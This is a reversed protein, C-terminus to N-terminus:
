KHLHDFVGDWPLTPPHKQMIECRELYIQPLPDQPTNQVIQKLLEAANEFHGKLYLEQAQNLDDQYQTRTPIDEIPLADLVEYIAVPQSRGKVRVRDLARLQFSHDGLGEVVNESIILACQYMKTMGELRAALNVSDGIVTSEWRNRSGLTGLVVEGWHIGIGMELKIGSQRTFEYLAQFMGIGAKVSSYPSKPFLAMVADGIYKDVFGGEEHISPVMEDLYANLLDFIEEPTKGEALSTFKRLDSFLIGLGQRTSDGRQVRTLDSHGLFELFPRPVFRVTAEVLAQQKANLEQLEAEALRRIKNEETLAIAKQNLEQTKAKVETELQNILRSLVEGLVQCEQAGSQSTNFSQNQDLSELASKSLTQIPNAISRTAWMTLLIMLFLYSIGLIYTLTKLFAKQEELQTSSSTAKKKSKIYLTRFGKLLVGTFRDFRDLEDGKLQNQNIYEFIKKIQNLADQLDGFSVGKLHSMEEVVRLRKQIQNIQKIGPAALYSNSQGGFILDGTTFLRDFDEKVYELQSLSKASAEQKIQQDEVNQYAYNLGLVLSIGGVAAFAILVTLYSRISM